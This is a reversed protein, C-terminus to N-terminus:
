DRESLIKELAEREKPNFNFAGKTLVSKLKGVTAPDNPDNLGVDSPKSLEKEPTDEVKKHDQDNKVKSFKSFEVKDAEPKPSFHENVKSRIENASLNERPPRSSKATKKQAQHGPSKEMPVGDAELTKFVRM